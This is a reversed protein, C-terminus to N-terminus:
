RPVPRSTTPSTASPSTPVGPPTGPSTGPPTAAAPPPETERELDEALRELTRRLRAITEPDNSTQLATRWAAEAERRRGVRYLANGLYTAAETQGPQLDLAKRYADIARAVRGLGAHAVGLNVWGRPEDPRAAVVEEFLPAAQEHLGAALASWGCEFLLDAPRDYAEVAARCHGAAGPGDGTDRLLRALGLHAPGAGGEATLQAALADRREREARWAAARGEIQASSISCM